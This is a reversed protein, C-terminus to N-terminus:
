LQRVTAFGEAGYQDECIITQNGPVGTSGYVANSGASSLIVGLAPDQVRWELPLGNPGSPTATFQQISNSATLTVDNPTITVGAVDDTQECGTLLGGVGVGLVMGLGMLGIKKM